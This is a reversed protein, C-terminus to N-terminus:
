PEGTVIFKYIHPFAGFIWLILVAIVSAVAVKLRKRRSWRAPSDLSPPIEEGAGISADRRTPRGDVEHERM